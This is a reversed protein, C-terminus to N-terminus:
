LIHRNRRHRRRDDGTQSVATRPGCRADVDFPRKRGRREAFLWGGVPATAGHHKFNVDLGFTAGVRNEAAAVPVNVPERPLCVEGSENM